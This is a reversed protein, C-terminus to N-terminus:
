RAACGRVRARACAGASRAESRPRRRGAVTTCVEGNHHLVLVLRDHADEATVAVREYAAGVPAPAEALADGIDLRHAAPQRREDVAPRLLRLARPPPPQRGAPGSRGDPHGGRRSGPRSPRGQGARTRCTGAPTGAAAHFTRLSRTPRGASASRRAPRGRARGAASRGGSRRGRGAVGAARRGRPM